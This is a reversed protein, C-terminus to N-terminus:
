GTPAITVKYERIPNEILVQLEVITFWRAEGPPEISAKAHADSIADDLTRGRGEYGDTANGNTV